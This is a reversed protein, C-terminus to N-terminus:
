EEVKGIMVVGAPSYGLAGVNREVEDSACLRVIMGSEWLAGKKVGQPRWGGVLLSRRCEVRRNVKGRYQGM